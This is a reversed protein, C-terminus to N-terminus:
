RRASGARGLSAASRATPGRATSFRGPEALQISEVTHTEDVSVFGVVAGNDVVDVEIHTELGLYGTRGYWSYRYQRGPRDTPRDLRVRWAQVKGLPTDRTDSAEVTALIQSTGFDQYIWRQGPHLPYRLVQVTPETPDGTGAGATRQEIRALAAEVAARTAPDPIRGKLVAPRSRIQRSRAAPAVCPVADSLLTMWLGDRNQRYRHYVTAHGGNNFAEHFREFVDGSDACVLDMELDFISEWLVTPRSDPLNLRAISRGRLKWSNGVTLPYSGSGGSAESSRSSSASTRVPDADPPATSRSTQICGTVLAAAILVAAIPRSASRPM